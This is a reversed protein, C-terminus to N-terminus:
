IKIPILLITVKLKINNFTKIEIFNDVTNKIICFKIKSKLQDSLITIYKMDITYMYENIDFILEITDSTKLGISKRYKNIQRRINNVLAINENYESTTTNLYIVGCSKNDNYKFMTGIFNKMPEVDYEITYFSNDFDINGSLIMEEYIKSKSKFIKGLNKKNPIYKKTLLNTPQIIIKMINLESCLVDFYEIIMDNDTYIIISNLPYFIPRNIQQRLKRVSELIEEISHFGNIIKMNLKYNKITKIDINQLHISNTNGLLKNFYEALHPIYPSILINFHNITIFLKSLSELKCDITINGKLRNRSLKIYINCFDDIFKYILNPINYIQLKEMNTHISQACEFFKNEIWHDMINNSKTILKHSQEIDNKYELFLNIANIYPQIKKKIGDLIDDNFILSEGKCAPSGILYLRIIDVGYIKIYNHQKSMKKGDEDLVFGSVIVKKFANQNFLATSLVNLTYFWGKIQDMSEAIFDVPTQLSKNKCSPYGERALPACGSEFWCDLIGFTRKYTTNNLNFTINELSDLHIDDFVKGTLEELQDLNTICIMHGNENIWVPIPTGWVRNRSICWDTSDKIWNNFREGIYPPSWTINKNNEILNEKIKQINFFWADVALSVLPTDTQSCYPYMHNIIESKFILSKKKLDNLIDNAITMVFKGMINKNNINYNINFNVQSDVLNEPLMSDNYNSYTKLIRMDDSAFLPSLMVIGTGKSKQVYTDGYIKYNYDQYNSLSYIPKYELGVLESGKVTKLVIYDNPKVAPVIKFSLSM